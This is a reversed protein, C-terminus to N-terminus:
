IRAKVGLHRLLQGSGCLALASAVFAWYISAADQTLPGTARSLAADDSRARPPAAAPDPSGGAPAPDVVDAGGIPPSADAPAGATTTPPPAGAGTDDSVVDGGAAEVPNAGGAFSVLASVGGLRYSASSTGGVDTTRRVTVVLAGATRGDPDDKPAVAEVSIGAEELVDGLPTGALPQETGALVLTGEEFGVRQGAVSVGDVELSSSRVLKGDPGRTATAKSAVRGIRLATGFSVSEATAAAAATIAGEEDVTSSALAEARGFAADPSDSGGVARAASTDRTSRAELTYGPGSAKAEPRNDADSAVYLPYDPAPVPPNASNVVGPAGVVFDGPYPHSAFGQSSGLQDLVTQATQGGVEVVAGLPLVEPNTFRARAASAVAIAEYSAEAPTPAGGAADAVPFLCAAVISAAAVARALRPSRRLAPSRSM